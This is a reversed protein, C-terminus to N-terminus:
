FDSSNNMNTENVESGEIKLSGRGRKATARSSKLFKELRLQEAKARDKQIQTKDKSMKVYKCVGKGDLVVPSKRLKDEKNHAPSNPRDDKVAEDSYEITWGNDLYEKMVTGHPDYIEDYRVYTYEKEPDKHKFDFIKTSKTAKRIADEINRAM